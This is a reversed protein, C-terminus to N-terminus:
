FNYKCSLTYIFKINMNTCISCFTKIGYDFVAYLRIVLMYNVKETLHDFICKRFFVCAKFTVMSYKIKAFVACFVFNVMLPKETFTVLDFSYIQDCKSFFAKIIKFIDIHAYLKITFLITLLM